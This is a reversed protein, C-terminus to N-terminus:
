KSIQNKRHQMDEIDALGGENFSRRVLIRDGKNEVM